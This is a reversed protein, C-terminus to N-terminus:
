NKQIVYCLRGIVPKDVELTINKLGRLFPLLNDSKSGDFSRLDSNWEQWWNPEIVQKPLVDVTYFYVENGLLSYNIKTKFAIKRDESIKRDSFELAKPLTESNSIQDKFGKTTKEFIKVKTDIDFAENQANSPKLQLTYPLPEYSIKYEIDGNASNTIGLLDISQDTAKLAVNSSNTKIWMTKQRSIGKPVKATEKGLSLNSLQKVLHPYFIIFQKDDLFDAGQQKMQSYFQVINDYNGLFIVYFPHFKDAKKGATNYPFKDGGIGVDYVMGDFESKVALIGVAYGKQLYKSKLQNLVLNMDSDKQYLDTVIISLEDKGSEPSQPTMATEIQSVRFIQDSGDYFEPLQAKLYSEREKLQQRETGFRYYKVISQSKSWGTTAATDLLNLTKIYHSNTTNKVFGQMSPTGDIHIAITISSSKENTKISPSNPSLDCTLDVNSSAQCATLLLLVTIAVLRKAEIM